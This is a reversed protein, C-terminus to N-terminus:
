RGAHVPPRRGRWPRAREIQGALRYLTAEDGFRSVLQIGVPLGARDIAFPVNAAPQGTANAFPQFPAYPEVKRLYDEVHDTPNTLYGIPAPPGAISPTLLVDYREFFRGVIRSLTGIYQGARIFDVASRGRGRELISWTLPELLDPTVTKGLVRATQEVAFAIGGFLYAQVGEMYQDWDYVPQAEEVSHGLDHLLAAADHVAQAREPDVDPHAFHGTAFAIRLPAPDTTADILYPGAPPPAWYPAGVDPGCTADLMAANDRVTHSIVHAVSFGGFADGIDPGTPLRQRTPKMTFVHCCAAPVRLSGGGDGGQAAPVIGAAVAAASGGSSGGTSRELDWPNRTIGTLTVETSISAGFEPTTTKGVVILGARRYRAVLESDHDAAPSGLLLQSGGGNRTGAMMPGIDKLLFPVGRFPGDPLPGEAAKMATERFDQCIANIAPDVRDIAEASAGVLEAASVEGSAVLEALGLADFEVYESLRM